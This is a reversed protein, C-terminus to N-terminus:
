RGVLRQRISVEKAAPRHDNAKKAKVESGCTLEIWGNLSRAGQYNDQIAVTKSLYERARKHDGM